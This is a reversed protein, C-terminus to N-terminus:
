SNKLKLDKILGRVISLVESYTYILPADSKKKVISMNNDLDVFTSFDNVQNIYLQLSNEMKQKIKYYM